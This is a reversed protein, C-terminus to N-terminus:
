FILPRASFSCVTRLEKLGGFFNENLARLFAGGLEVAPAVSDEFSAVDAVISADFLADKLTDFGFSFV